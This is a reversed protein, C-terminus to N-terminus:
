DLLLSSLSRDAAVDPWAAGGLFRANKGNKRSLGAETLAQAANDARAAGLEANWGRHRHGSSKPTRVACINASGGVTQM